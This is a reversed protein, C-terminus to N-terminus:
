ITLSSHHAGVVTGPGAVEVEIGDRQGSNVEGAGGRNDDQAACLVAHDEGQRDNRGAIDGLRLGLAHLRKRAALGLLCFVTLALAWGTITLALTTANPAEDGAIFGRMSKIGMGLYAYFAAGPLTGVISATCYTWVNVNTVALVYNVWVFPIYPIRILVVVRWDDRQFADDLARLATARRQRRAVCRQIHTRFCLRGLVFATCAGLVGGLWVVLVAVGFPFIYGAAAAFMTVPFALVTVLAFVFVYSIAGNGPHDRAWEVFNVIARRSDPILLTAATGFLLMAGFM